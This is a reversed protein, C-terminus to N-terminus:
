RPAGPVGSTDYTVTAGTDLNEWTLGAAEASACSTFNVDVNPADSAEAATKGFSSQHTYVIRSAAQLAFWDVFAKLVADADADGM